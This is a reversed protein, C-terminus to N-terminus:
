RAHRAFFDLATRTADLDQTGGWGVSEPGGPWTHAAKEDRCFMVESGGACADNTVCRATGHAYVERSITADCQDVKTWMDLVTKVSSWSREPTGALKVIGDERGHIQLVAVPATPACRPLGFTGAVSAVATIRDALECGLRHSMFGGNSFGIAYVRSRDVCANAELDDLLARVYGVDDVHRDSAEGCCTGANFSRGVGLSRAVIWGRASGIEGIKSTRELQDASGGWGHFALVVPRPTADDPDIDQPLDIWVHRERDGHRVVREGSAIALHGCGSPRAPANGVASPAPIAAPDVLPAPAISASPAAARTLAALPDISAVPALSASLEAAGRRCGSAAVVTAVASLSFVRLLRESFAFRRVDNKM